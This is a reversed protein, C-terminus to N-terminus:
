PDFIELTFLGSYGNRTTNSIRTSISVKDGTRVFRPLNPNIMLPKSAIYFGNQMDETIAALMLKWSTHSDPLSFPIEVIGKKDSELTSYFFATERFDRRLDALPMSNETEAQDTSTEAKAEALVPSTKALLNRPAIGNGYMPIIDRHLYFTNFRDLDFPPCDDADPTRASLYNNHPSHPYFFYPVPTYGPYFNWYLPAIADLVQDYM